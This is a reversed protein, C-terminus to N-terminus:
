ALVMKEWSDFCYQRYKRSSPRGSLANVALKFGRGPNRYDSPNSSTKPPIAYFNPQNLIWNWGVFYVTGLKNKVDSVVFRRSKGDKKLNGIKMDGLLETRNPLREVFDFGAASKKEAGLNHALRTAVFLNEYVTSLAVEGACYSTMFRKKNTFGLTANYKVKLEWALEALQYHAEIELDTTAM